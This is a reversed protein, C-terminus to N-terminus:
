KKDTVTQEGTDINRDIVVVIGDPRTAEFTERRGPVDEVESEDSEDGEGPADPADPNVEPEVETAEVPESIEPAEPIEADAPEPKTNPVGRPM